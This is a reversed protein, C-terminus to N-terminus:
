KEVVVDPVGSLKDIIGDKNGAGLSEVYKDLTAIRKMGNKGDRYRYVSEYVFTGDTYIGPTLRRERHYSGSPTTFFRIPSFNWLTRNPNM